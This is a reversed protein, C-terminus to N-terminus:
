TKHVVKTKIEVNIFCCIECLKLKPIGPDIDNATVSLAGSKMAAIACAGSGSGVDLVRRGLM